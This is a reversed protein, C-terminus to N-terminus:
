RVKKSGSWVEGQDKDNGNKDLRKDARGLKAAKLQAGWVPTGDTGTRTGDKPERTQAGWM